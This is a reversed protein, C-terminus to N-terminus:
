INKKFFDITNEIVYNIQQDTMDHYLPLRILRESYLDSYPLSLLSNNKQYFKSKHLSQYHFTPLIKKDKLYIILQSRVEFSDLVLYFIHGNNSSYEPIFPLSVGFNELMKLQKYYKNWKRVRSNTIKEVNM